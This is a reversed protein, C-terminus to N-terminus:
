QIARLSWHPVKVQHVQAANLTAEM